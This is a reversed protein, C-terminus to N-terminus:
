FLMTSIIRVQKHTRSGSRRRHRLEAAAAIDTFDPAAFERPGTFRVSRRDSRTASLSVVAKESVSHFLHLSFAQTSSLFARGLGEGERFISELQDKRYGYHIPYFYSKPFITVDNCHEAEDPHASSPTTVNKPCSQHLIRTFLVPGISCCDHPKFSDPISRVVDQLIPHGPVFSVVATNILLTDDVRGLWNNLSPLPRLTIADLDVYTGGFRRLLEARTADGVEAFTRGESFM